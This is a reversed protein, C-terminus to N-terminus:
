WKIGTYEVNRSHKLTHLHPRGYINKQLYERQWWMFGQGDIVGTGQWLLNTIESFVILDPSDGGGEPHPYDLYNKCALLTGDVTITIDNLGSVVIPMFTFNYNAPVLVERDTEGALNAAELAAAVADANTFATGSDELDPIAGYDM